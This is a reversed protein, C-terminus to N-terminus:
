KGSVRNWEAVLDEIFEFEDGAPRFIRHETGIASTVGPQFTSCCSALATAVACPSLEPLTVINPAMAAPQRNECANTISWGRFEAIEQAVQGPHASFILSLGVWARSLLAGYEELTLKQLPRIQVGRPLHLIPHKGGASVVSWLAAEPYTKAWHKMGEVLLGFGNRMFAPRAYLFILREKPLNRNMVRQADLTPHLTPEHVFRCPFLFGRRTFDDALVKTNFVAIMEEPHEYSAEALCYQPSAPYFLPEYEQILYVFRRPGLPLLPRQQSLVARIFMVAHWATAIFYDNEAVTVHAEDQRGFFEIQRPSFDGGVSWGPWQELTAPDFAEHTVLIRAFDFHELLRLFFRQATVMGAFSAEQSLAPLVLNLRRGAPLRCPHVVPPNIAPMSCMFLDAARQRALEADGACDSSNASTQANM